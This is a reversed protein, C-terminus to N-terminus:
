STKEIQLERRTKKNRTLMIIKRNRNTTSRRRTLTIIKRPLMDLRPGGGPRHRLDPPAVAFHSLGLLLLLAVRGVHVFNRLLFPRMDRSRGICVELTQKRFVFTPPGPNFVTTDVEHPTGLIDQVILLDGDDIVHHGDGVEIFVEAQHRIRPLRRYLEQCRSKTAAVAVEHTGFKLEGCVRTCPVAVIRPAHPDQCVGISTVSPLIHLPLDM